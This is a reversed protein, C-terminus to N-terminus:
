EVDEEPLAWVSISGESVKFVGFGEEDIEIRDNLTNTLDVWTEGAREEGVFMRKQSEDSTSILVACGSREIEEVGKRVWGIVNADDFYDDQEGYAKERRAYLLTDIALKMGDTPHPGDIGYYDGYFVCPYGDKRLLVLGYAIQKFWDKVWSELAEEPQSDHNDVFTVSHLPHSQVLTDDFITRMDFAAGEESAQHLKYHLPVDFLDVHYDINDLFERCADLDSKWFEGVFYFQDGKEERMTQSFEKIFDYNIHKIADLRFGDCKTEEIFWKGWNLVEERVDPHHYDINAFMLYDYVGFEDDVNDNWRKNEGVIFFIGSRDTAADYDTGNFHTFDWKFSSYKGDRAEYDFKTWGEIEFAEDSLVKTRDDPDVELVEFKETADAGAKHNMVVDMYIQMGLEQQCYTTAELLEKKTGYKTAISGKQDFEGLDYLDYIGYGTDQDSQGKTVPPLWLATIGAKNLDAAREKLRKWHKQDAEVHWEFFQMMTHNREM